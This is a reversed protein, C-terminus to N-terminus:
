IVIKAVRVDVLGDQIRDRALFKAGSHGIIESVSCDKTGVVRHTKEHLKLRSENITLFIVCTVIDAAQSSTM